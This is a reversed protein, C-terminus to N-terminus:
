EVNVGLLPLHHLSPWNSARRSNGLSAFGLNPASIQEHQEGGITGSRRARSCCKDNERKWLVSAGGKETGRRWAEAAVAVALARGCAGASVM